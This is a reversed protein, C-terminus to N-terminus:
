KPRGCCKKYKKGSGCPCPDNRGVGSFRTTEAPGKGTSKKKKTPTKKATKKKKPLLKLFARNHKKVEKILVPSNHIHGKEELFSLLGTLTAAANKSSEGPFTLRRPAYELMFHHIHPQHLEKIEKHLEFFLYDLFSKVFYDAYERTKKTKSKFFKSDLFDRTITNTFHVLRKERKREEKQKETIDALAM